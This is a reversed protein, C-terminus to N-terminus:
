GRLRLMAAAVAEQVANGTGPRLMGVLTLLVEVQVFEDLGTGVAALARAVRALFVDHRGKVAALSLAPLASKGVVVLAEVARVATEDDCRQLKAVLRDVLERVVEQRITRLYSLAEDRRAEDGVLIRTFESLERKHRRKAENGPSRANKGAM